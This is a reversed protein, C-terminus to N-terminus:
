VPAQSIPHAERQKCAPVASSARVHWGERLLRGEKNREVDVRQNGVNLTQAWEGLYTQSSTTKEDPELPDMKLILCKVPPIKFFGNKESRTM